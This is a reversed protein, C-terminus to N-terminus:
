GPDGGEKKVASKTDKKPIMMDNSESLKTAAKSVRKKVYSHAAIYEGEDENDEESKM